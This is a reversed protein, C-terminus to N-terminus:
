RNGRGSLVPLVTLVLIKLDLWLSINARYWADRAVKEDDSLDDRGNIQAWGTIGPLLDEVGIQRRLENVVTQSPLAPRPGVLSMEGRLINILQPLEDLSYRRLFAGVRTVPSKAQRAMEETSLTPTGIHMTRFKILTFPRSGRGVRAQRFLAPGPSDLRIALACVAFVPALLILAPLALLLDFCRKAPPVPAPAVVQKGDDSFRQEQPMEERSSPRVTEVTM